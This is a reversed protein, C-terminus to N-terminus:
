TIFGLYNEQTVLAFEAEGPYSALWAKKSRSKKEKGWTIEYGWLKGDRM